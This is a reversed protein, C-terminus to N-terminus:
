IINTKEDYKIRPDGENDWYWKAQTDDGLMRRLLFEQLDKKTKSQSM